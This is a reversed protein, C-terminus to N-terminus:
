WLLLLGVLGVLPYVSCYWHQWASKGCLRFPHWNQNSDWSSQMAGPSLSRKPFFMIVDEEWLKWICPVGNGLLLQCYDLPLFITLYSFSYIQSISLFFQKAAQVTHCMGHQGINCKTQHFPRGGFAINLGLNWNTWILFQNDLNDKHTAEHPLEKENQNWMGQM